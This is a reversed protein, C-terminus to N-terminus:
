FSKGYDTFEMETANCTNLDSRCKLTWCWLPNKGDRKVFILLVETMKMITNNYKWGEEFTEM